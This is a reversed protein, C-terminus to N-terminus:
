YDVKFIERKWGRVTTNGISVHAKEYGMKEMAENMANRSVKMTYGNTILLKEINHGAMKHYKCRHDEKNSYEIYDKNVVEIIAEYDSYRVMSRERAVNMFKMLGDSPILMDFRKNIPSNEVLRAYHAHLKEILEPNKTIKEKNISKLWIPWWRRNGTTDTLYELNNSTGIFSVTVPLPRTFEVYKVDIEYTLKSVFSKVTEVDESKRMLKMEGIEALLKGRCQKATEQSGFQSKSGSGLDVYLDPGFHHMAIYKSLTTKGIGQAGQLVPIIDNELLGKFNGEGINIRTGDIHMHMRLFFLHWVERYYMKLDADTYPSDIPATFDMLDIFEELEWGYSKENEHLHRSKVYDISEAVRNRNCNKSLIFDKLREIISEKIAVMPVYYRLRQIIANNLMATNHYEMLLTGITYDYHICNALEADYVPVAYFWDSKLKQKGDEEQYYIESSVKKVIVDSPAHDLKTPKSMKPLFVETGPSFVESERTQFSISKQIVSVGVQGKVLCNPDGLRAYYLLTAGTIKGNEPFTNWKYNLEHINQGPKSVSIWDNISFTSIM